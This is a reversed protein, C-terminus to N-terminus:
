VVVAPGAPQSEARMTFCCAIRDRLDLLDASRSDTGARGSVECVAGFAEACHM